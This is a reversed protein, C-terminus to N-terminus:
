KKQCLEIAKLIAQERAKNYELDDYCLIYNEPEKITICLKEDCFTKINKYKSIGEGQLSWGYVYEAFNSAICPDVMIFICHKERFWDIVQQWLPVAVNYVAKTFYSNKVTTTRDGFSNQLYMFYMTNDSNAWNCGHFHREPNFKAGEMMWEKMPKYYGFCEEDFGLSKLEKAIEYTVFQKKM